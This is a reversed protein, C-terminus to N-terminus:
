EYELARHVLKIVGEREHIGREKAARDERPWHRWGDGPLPAIGSIRATTHRGTIHIHAQRVRRRSAAM